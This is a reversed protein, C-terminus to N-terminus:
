VLSATIDKNEVILVNWDNQSLLKILKTRHDNLGSGIEKINYVIEYGNNIGYNVM